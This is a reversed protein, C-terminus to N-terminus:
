WQKAAVYQRWGWFWYIFLMAFDEPQQMSRKEEVIFIFATPEEEVIIFKQWIASYTGGWYVARDITLILLVETRV